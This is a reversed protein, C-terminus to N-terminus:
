WKRWNGWNSWYNRWNGWALWKTGSDSVLQDSFGSEDVSATVRLLRNRISDVKTLVPDTVPVANAYGAVVPLILSSAQIVRHRILQKDDIKM